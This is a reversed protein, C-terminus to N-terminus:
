SEQNYLWKRHNDHNSDNKTQGNQKAVQVLRCPHVGIRLFGAPGAAHPAGAPHAWGRAVCPARHTPTHTPKRAEIQLPRRAAALNTQPLTDFDDKFRHNGKIRGGEM